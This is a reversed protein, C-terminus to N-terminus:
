FEDIFNRQPRNEAVALELEEDDADPLVEAAPLEIAAPRNGSISFKNNLTKTRNDIVTVREITQRKRKGFGDITAVYKCMLERNAEDEPTREIRARNYEPKRIAECICRDGVFVYAKLIEGDNGDLWYVDVNKGEIECMLDILKSGVAIVGNIGLLWEQRQLKIIGTHCSTETKYGLLPVIARYNIPQLDPNQSELFVEWRTKGEIKSHEANNWREIARLGLEVIEDYPRIIKAEPGAQYSENLAGPRALWGEEGREYEYRLPRNYGEIRKARANNAEIHVYQFMVGEKLFTDKYSANLNLEGELEAPLSLGWQAYNRIMQRYFELIIGEKSKGYVWCTFCESGLDIGNYFWVRDNQRNYIFPPQRDDVSIISGAYKAQKLSHYPRFKAILLQRNGGRITHTAIRNDWKALYNYITSPSIPAFEDPNYLEGTQNNIVEIQGNLFGNYMGTIDAMTPKKSRDAFLSNLFLEMDVSVVRANANGFNKHIIAAYGGKKYENWKLRLKVASNPLSHPQKDRFRNSEAAVVTWLDGAENGTEKRFQKRKANIKGITNLVSANLTYEEIRDESVKHPFPYTTYFYYANMDREYLSEFLSKKAIAPPNGFQKISLNLWSTPLSEALLVATSEEGCGGGNRLKYVSKRSIRQRLGGASILRLSQEHAGEGEFLFRAQIGLKGDIYEYPNVTTQM